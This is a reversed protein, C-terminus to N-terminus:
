KFDVSKEKISGKITDNNVRRMFYGETSDIALSNCFLGKIASAWNNIGNNKLDRVIEEHNILGTNYLQNYMMNCISNYTNKGHEDCCIDQNVIQEYFSLGFIVKEMEGLNSVKRNNVKDYFFKEGSDDRTSIYRKGIAFVDEFALTSSLDLESDVNATISDKARSGIATYLLDEYVKGNKYYGLYGGRNICADSIRDSSLFKDIIRKDPINLLDMDTFVNQKILTKSQLNVEYTIYKNLTADKEGVYHVILSTGDSRRYSRFKIDIKEKQSVDYYNGNKFIDGIHATKRNASDDLNSKCFIKKMATSIGHDLKKGKRIRETMASLNFSTVFLGQAVIRKSDDKDVSACFYINNGTKEDYHVHGIYPIDTETIEYRHFNTVACNVRSLINSIADISEKNISSLTNSYDQIPEKTNPRHSRIFNDTLKCFYNLKNKGNNLLSTDYTLDLPFVKGNFHM